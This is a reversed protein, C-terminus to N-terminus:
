RILNQEIQLFNAASTKSIQLPDGMVTINNSNWTVQNLESLLTRQPSFSYVISNVEHLQNIRTGRVGRVLKRIVNTKVDVEQFNIREGNIEIIDGLGICLEIHDGLSAGQGFVIAAKGEILQYGSVEINELTTKNYAIVCKIQTLTLQVYGVLQNNYNEVIIERNTMELLKTVDNVKIENNFSYFDETLWTRDNLNTRTVIQESNKTITLNYTMENPSAGSVMTTIILEDSEQIPENIILNNDQIVKIENTPAIQSINVTYTGAGGLGTEYSVIVTNPAINSGTITQGVRINGFIVNEITLTTDQISGVFTAPMIFDINKPNIRKGNLTIWTREGNTYLLPDKTIPVTYSPVTIIDTTLRIFGGYTYTSLETSYVPLTLASDNFLEFHYDGDNIVSTVDKVYYFNNNLETSGFVGSIVVEDSDTLDPDNEFVLTGTTGTLSVFKIPTTKISTSVSTKLYQRTTDNFTTIAVIDDPSVNNAFTIILDVSDITFSDVREGNIEVIMNNINDGSLTVNENDISLNDTTIDPVIVYTEPVSYSYQTTNLLTSSDLIISFVIFDTKNDYSQSFILRTIDPVTEDIYFDNPNTQSFGRELKIGNVFVVVEIIPYIKGIEEFVFMSNGTVIDTYLPYVQSNGRYLEKANGLEYVEIMVQQNSDVPGLLTIDQNYWDITYSIPNNTSTINEYIRTGVGNDMVFVAIKAPNLTLHKFSIKNTVQDPIDIVSQMNFGTNGYWLRVDDDLDWYAGPSTRVYMSLNDSVVGPVLEEPGYGYLFENGKVMYYPDNVQINSANQWNIGNTTRIITDNEGTAYFYEGTYYIDNLKNTTIFESSVDQWTIGDTSILIYAPDAENNGVKDGVAIFINNGFEVSNITAVNSGTITGQIWNTTNISYWIQNEEGVVVVVDSSAAVDNLGYNVLRPQQLVWTGPLGSVSTVIRSVPQIEPAATNENATVAFGKGVTIYGAFSGTNAYTVGNFSNELRSGINFATTWEIADTSFLIQEGVAIYLNNDVYVQNLPILPTNVGGFNYGAIDFPYIDFSPSDGVSVWETADYSLLIPTSLNRTTIVYLGNYVQIDSINLVTESLPYSNWTGLENRIIVFSSTKSDCAAVLRGEYEVIAKINADAPYFPQDQLVTDLPLQDEPAFKNGFYVTNPYSIGRLLQEPDKGPMNFSPNYYAEIRDLANLALDNSQLPFWKTPNFENDNNAEICQWIIGAYTVISDQQYNFSANNQIPEPLYGFILNLDVWNITSYPIPLTLKADAYLALESNSIPKVYYRSFNSNSIGTVTASFISGDTNTYTVTIIADNVINIGGLNSGSVVIRDGDSYITGPDLVLISYVTSVNNPNFTPRSIRIKAGGNATDDFIYVGKNAETPQEFFYMNANNVQGPKLGSLGYDVRVLANGLNSNLELVPLVAGQLSALSANAAKGEVSVSLIEGNSGVETVTIFCDHEPTQGGLNLGSITIVDDEQYNIGTNVIKVNYEQGFLLNYVDFIAGTGGAPLVTGQLNEYEASIYLRANSSTDNGISIYPSSYYKGPVWSSIKAKYSTRDFRLTPTISRVVENRLNVTARARISITHIYVDEILSPTV